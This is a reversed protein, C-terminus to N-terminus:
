HICIRIRSAWFCISAVSGSGSGCCQSSPDQNGCSVRWLNSNTINIEQLLKYSAKSTKTNVVVVLVNRFIVFWRCIRVYHIVSTAQIGETIQCCWFDVLYQKQEWRIGITAQMGYVVLPTNAKLLLFFRSGALLFLLKHALKKTKETECDRKFLKSCM